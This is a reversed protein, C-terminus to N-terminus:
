IIDSFGEELMDAYITGPPEFDPKVGEDYFKLCPRDDYSVATEGEM